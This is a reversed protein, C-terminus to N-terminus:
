EQHDSSSNNEELHTEKSGNNELMSFQSLIQRREELMTKNVEMTFSQLSIVINKLNVIEEALMEYRKDFEEVVDKLQLPIEKEGEGGEEVPKDKNENMFKELQILRRDVIQIVQPLTLGGSQMNQQNPPQPPAIKSPMETPARRKKAAALSQSM